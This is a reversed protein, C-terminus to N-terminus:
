NDLYKILKYNARFDFNIRSSEDLVLAAGLATGLAQSATFIKVKPLCYKLSALFFKNKTFGGEIYITTNSNTDIKMAQVLKECLEFNLQHIAQLASSLEVKDKNKDNDLYKFEYCTHTQSRKLRSKELPLAHIASTEVEFKQGIKELQYEYEKGILLRVAQTHNSDVQLYKLPHEIKHHEEEFPFFVVVWTGTSMLIFKEDSCQIYPLLSASSDHIGAGVQFEHNKYQVKFCTSGKILSPFKSLLKEKKVWYHYDNTRYDWLATHCGVSTYEAHKAGHILFSLYQPLHLSWRIRDFLQPKTKSLWLLQMGSNLFGARPSGLSEDLDLGDGYEEYWKEIYDEDVEKLYNYLPTLVEDKQSLHILSAGYTSFNLHTIPIKLSLLLRDLTEFIWKQLLDIQECEFGDEDHGNALQIEEHHLLQYKHDFVVLKKNTKGIDFIATCRKTM